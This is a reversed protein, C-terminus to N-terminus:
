MRQVTLMARDSVVLFSIQFFVMTNLLCTNDYIDNYIHCVQLFSQLHSNRGISLDRLAHTRTTYSLLAFYLLVEISFDLRLSVGQNKFVLSFVFADRTYPLSMFCTYIDLPM